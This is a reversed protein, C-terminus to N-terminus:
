VFFSAHALAVPSTDMNGRNTSTSASITEGSTTGWGNGTGICMHAMRIILSILTIRLEERAKGEAFLHLDAHRYSAAAREKVVVSDRVVASGAEVGARVVAEVGEVAAMRDVAASRL